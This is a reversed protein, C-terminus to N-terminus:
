TGVGVYFYICLLPGPALIVGMQTLFGPSESSYVM